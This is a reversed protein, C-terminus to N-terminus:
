RRVALFGGPGGVPGSFTVVHTAGLLSAIDTQVHGRVNHWEGVIRECRSVAPDALFDYEGGENDIKVLALSAADPAIYAFDVGLDLLASLTWGWYSIEDHENEGGHDYALSSNGIFAHHEATESGRYGYWVTVEGRGAAGEIVTVRDKLGNLVVNERLLRANDPVPEVAIVRLDPNDLALGLTVAGIHAGIDLALGTLTLPRLGYEDENLASYLTNWDSTDTRYRCRAAQGRPTYFM